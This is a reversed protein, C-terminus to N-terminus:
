IVRSPDYLWNLGFGLLAVAFAMVLALLALRGSLRIAPPRQEFPRSQDFWLTWIAVPLVPVSRLVVRLVPSPATFAEIVYLTALAIASLALAGM